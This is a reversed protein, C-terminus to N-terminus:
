PTEEMHLTLEPLKSYSISGRVLMKSELARSETSLEFGRGSGHEYEMRRKVIVIQFAFTIGAM